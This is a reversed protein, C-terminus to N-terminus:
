KNRPPWSQWSHARSVVDHGPSLGEGALLSLSPFGAWGPCLVTLWCPPKILGTNLSMEPTKLLVNWVLSFYNRFDLHSDSVNQVTVLDWIQGPLLQNNLAVPEAWDQAGCMRHTYLQGSMHPRSSCLGARPESLLWCWCWWPRSQTIASLSASTIILSWMICHPRCPDCHVNCLM